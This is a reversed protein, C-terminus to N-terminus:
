GLSIKNTKPTLDEECYQVAYFYSLHAPNRFVYKSQTFDIIGSYVCTVTRYFIFNYFHQDFSIEDKANGYILDKAKVIKTM